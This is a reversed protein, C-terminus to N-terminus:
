ESRQNDQYSDDESRMCELDINYPWFANRARQKALERTQRANEDLLGIEAETRSQKVRLKNRWSYLQTVHMGLQNVAEALGVTDARKVADNKYKESHVIRQLRESKERPIM